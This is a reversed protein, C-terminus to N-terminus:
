VVFIHHLFKCKQTYIKYHLNQGIIKFPGLHASFTSHFGPVPFHSTGFFYHIGFAPCASTAIPEYIGLALNASLIYNHSEPGLLGVVLM